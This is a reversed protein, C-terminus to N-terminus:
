PKSNGVANDPQTAIARHASNEVIKPIMHRKAPSLRIPGALVAIIEVSSTITVAAKAIRKRPSVILRGFIKPAQM